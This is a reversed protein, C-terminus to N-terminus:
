TKPRSNFLSDLLTLLEVLCELRLISPPVGADEYHSSSRISTWDKPVAFTGSPSGKLVVCEVGSVTRSKLLPFQQRSLPHFPHTIEIWGSPQSLQHATVQPRGM